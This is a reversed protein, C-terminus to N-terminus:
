CFRVDVCFILEFMEIEIRVGFDEFWFAGGSHYKASKNIKVLLFIKVFIIYFKHSVM